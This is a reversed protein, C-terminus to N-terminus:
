LAPKKQALSLCSFRLLSQLVGALVGQEPLNATDRAERLSHDVGRGWRIQCVQM